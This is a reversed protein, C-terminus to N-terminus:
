PEQVEIHCLVTSDTVQQGVKVKCGQVLGESSARVVHEMKMAELVLIPDDKKVRTGNETFVKVIRGSMPAVIVGPAQAPGMEHQGHHSRRFENSNNTDYEPIPVTFQHHHGGEWLHIHNVGGQHYQAFSVPSSQTNVDLRFDDGDGAIQTGTVMVKELNEAEVTFSGGKEYTLKLSLPVPPSDGSEPKWDLHLMRSYSHNLRFGSGSTWISGMGDKQTASKIGSVAAALAAGYKAEHPVSIEDHSARAHPLLDAKFRDIFHTDVDGAAFAHHSALKKLFNINTPLGAIQFRTLCDLLKTLAASRDRGWVVLKAIMPDYFVSVSDGKGVGTEVRVTSSTEPPSYHHLMGAAPLFGRPVNEAYIRAEFSHGILNIQSQKLPLTEGNAVRIQWEVLDQRTVMETVPHEVQLRTNMEMFYFDNSVTDVIFEVTGASEYGVAKAANVAAEGISQRFEATIHPAPAEEIIKQHRRQVSCDRENLHVANGHKDAFIQVEIHRPRSLYKEILVRCDGFAAQSERQASALAELFESESHVIRMGKGGGGQTAKILVPYGIRNAEAQLLDPSQDEGHYGPVVPVGAASMISKAVSKDGMARIAEAPPGMFIIGKQKCLEAFQSSESLFGYGPHIADAGTALATAVINAGNLYSSSAPAPGIFVSEDAMAVHKAQRDAESYVAVTRVGLKKATKIVRCAIEGRNAILIKKISKGEWVEQGQPGSTSYSRAQSESFGFKVPPCRFEESSNNADHKDGGRDQLISPLVASCIGVRQRNLYGSSIVSSNYNRTQNGLAILAWRYARSGGGM